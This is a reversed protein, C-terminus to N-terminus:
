NSNKNLFSYELFDITLEKSDKDVNKIEKIIKIINKLKLLTMTDKIELKEINDFVTNIAKKREEETHSYTWNLVRKELNYHSRSIHTRIFQDDDICWSSMSHSFFSIAKTKVVCHNENRLLIGIVSNNPIFQIYKNKIRQYKKSNFEENRLGPGDNNYINKIKFQKYRKLYISSVVALNGGKSHGGIIVKPGFLKVHKNVYKIAEYHSLVLFSALLNFSERWSSIFQDTGEFSIYILKKTIKFTLASFQMNENKRIYDCVVIDKYRKTKIIKELVKYADKISLGYKSVDRLKYKELYQKGIIKITPNKIINIDTETFDLYPLLSFVINDLENFSKEEFSTDGYKKIYDFINKRFM